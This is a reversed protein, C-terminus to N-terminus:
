VRGQPEVELSLLRLRWLTERLASCERLPEKDSSLPQRAQALRGVWIRPAKGHSEFKKSLTVVLGERREVGRSENSTSGLPRIGLQQAQLGPQCQQPPVRGAGLGAARLM